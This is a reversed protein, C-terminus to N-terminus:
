SPPQQRSEWQKLAAKAQRTERRGIIFGTAGGIVILVGAAWTVLPVGERFSMWLLPTSLLGLILARVVAYGTPHEGAWREMRTPGGQFEWERLTEDIDPVTM